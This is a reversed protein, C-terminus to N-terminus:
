AYFVHITGNRLYNKLHPKWGLDLRALIGSNRKVLSAYYYECHLHGRQNKLQAIGLTFSNHTLYFDVTYRVCPYHRWGATFYPTLLGSSASCVSTAMCHLSAARPATYSRQFQVSQFRVLGAQQVHLRKPRLCLFERVRLYQKRKRLSGRPYVPGVGEYVQMGWSLKQVFNWDGWDKGQM